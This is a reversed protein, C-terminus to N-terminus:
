GAHRAAWLWSLARLGGWSMKLEAMDRNFHWNHQTVLEEPSIDCVCVCVCV